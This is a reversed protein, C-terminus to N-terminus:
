PHNDPPGAADATDFTRGPKRISAILVALMAMLIEDYFPILDPVILNILFLGGVILFLTPYRMGATLRTVFNGIM